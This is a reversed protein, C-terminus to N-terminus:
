AIVRDTRGDTQGLRPEIHVSAAHRLQRPERCTPQRCSDPWWLHVSQPGRGRVSTSGGRTPSGDAAPMDDRRGRPSLKNEVNVSKTRRASKAIKSARRQAASVANATARHRHRDTETQRLDSSHRVVIPRISRSKQISVQRAHRYQTIFFKRERWFYSYKGTCSHRLRM